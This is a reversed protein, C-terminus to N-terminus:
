VAADAAQREAREALATELQGALAQHGAQRLQGPLEPRSAPYVGSESLAARSLHTLYSVRLDLLANEDGIEEMTDLQTKAIAARDRAVSPDPLPIRGRWRTVIEKWTDARDFLACGFLVSWTLLDDGRVLGPEVEALNYSRVDVEIPAREKLQDRDQCLVIIDLDESPVNSRVASGVAVVAWINQNTRLREL